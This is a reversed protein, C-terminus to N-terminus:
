DLSLPTDSKLRENMAARREPISFVLACRRRVSACDPQVWGNQRKFSLLAGEELLYNLMEETVRGKQGNEFIVDILM